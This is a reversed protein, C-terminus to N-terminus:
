KSSSAAREFSAAERYLAVLSRAAAEWTFQRARTLGGERLKGRLAPNSAVGLLAALWAKPDDPPLLLAADGCVEPLAGAAAALVPCGCAMAELAPLGFGEWRSPFVLALAERYSAVLAAEDAKPLLEVRGELGLARVLQLVRPTQAVSGVLRLPPLAQAEPCAYAQLVVEWNKHPEGGGVGLVFREGPEKGPSFGKSVGHHIVATRSALSPLLGALQSAAFNSVAHIFRARRLSLIGGRGRQRQWWGLTGPFFFPTADHFTAVVPVPVGFPVGWAPLHLAALQFRRCTWAWAPGDWLFAGRRPRHLKIISAGESYWAPPVHAFSPVFIVLADGAEGALAPVLERVMRGFGRYPDLFAARADFGWRM